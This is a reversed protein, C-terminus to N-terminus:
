SARPVAILNAIKFQVEQKLELGSGLASNYTGEITLVRRRGCTECTALDDGHLVITVSTASAIPVRERANIVNGQLDTLTWTLDDNPEVPENQEDFFSAVIAYTSQELAPTTLVTM